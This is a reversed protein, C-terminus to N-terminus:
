NLFLPSLLLDFSQILGASVGIDARLRRCSRAIELKHFSYFALLVPAVCVFGQALASLQAQNIRSQELRGTLATM